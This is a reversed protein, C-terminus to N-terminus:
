YRLRYTSNCRIFIFSTFDFCLTNLKLVTFPLYQQLLRHLCVRYFSNFVTEIGYVTPVTAVFSSDNNAISLTLFLKLVTFPLYQQLWTSFDMHESIVLTSTEIGYVTPVTAVAPRVFDTNM